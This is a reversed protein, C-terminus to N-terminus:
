HPTVHELNYLKVAKERMIYKQVKGTVTLPYDEVFTVFNPIKFHSIKGKCYEKIEDETATQGEKLRIWAAVQEGLREDPVGIIQVDEVKPHSYLFNEVEVPYINEGGRIILDRMRGSIRAFGDAEMIAIDGTRYWRDPMIVEETKEHDNWYRLMTAYGRTCLEGPTGLPLVNGDEDIIKVEVHAAPTGITGVRKEVPDTINSQFTVPSNETTGYCVTVDPMHLREVVQKMIEPPCPSGAMIGTSLSELNFIDFDHLNLMDIFMTPTGYLSTCKEDHVAQLAAEPEFSPSPYVITAGHTICQLSALVMGFCHYLPVPACIRHSSQHYGLRMGVFYSNNVINHHSLTAGKPTGTTGSTFQINIPDDFQLKAQMDRVSALQKNTGAQMLEAFTMTGRHKTEGIMVVTKLEPLSRSKLDGAPSYALEPNIHFLMEYYDQTKFKEATILVKLGVKKLVYELEMTQYAPNINVLIIGARATGYQALIWEWCNPAWIGVRDGKTVGLAILGAALQDAETLLDQFTKRTRSASFITALKDPHKEVRQELLEGVTVGLLPVTGSGQTYSWKLEGGETQRYGTTHLYQVSLVKRIQFRSVVHRNIPEHQLGHTLGRKGFSIANHFYIRSFMIKRYKAQLKC